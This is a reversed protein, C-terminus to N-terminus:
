KILSSYPNIKLIVISIIKSRLSKHILQVIIIYLTSETFDHTSIPFYNHFLITLPFSQKQLTTQDKTDMLKFNQLIAELDVKLINPFLSFNTWCILM